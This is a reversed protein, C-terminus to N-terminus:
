QEYSTEGFGKEPLILLVLRIEELMRTCTSGVAYALLIKPWSGGARRTEVTTYGTERSATRSEPHTVGQFHTGSVSNKRSASKQGRM